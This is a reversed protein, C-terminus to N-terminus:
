GPLVSRSRQLLDCSPPRASMRFASRIVGYSRITCIVFEGKAVAKGHHEGGSRLGPSSTVQVRLTLPQAKGPDSCFRRESSSAPM